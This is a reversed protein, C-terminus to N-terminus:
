SWIEETPVPVRSLADALARAKQSNQNLGRLILRHTYVYPALTKVDEPIVFARGRVAALSQCARALMLSGRPSVGLAVAEHARTAESLAVIYRSIEPHIKVKTVAKQMEVLEPASIAPSLADLPSEQVFRGIIGAEGEASPYGVSLQMLFRD